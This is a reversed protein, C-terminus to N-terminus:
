EAYGGLYIDTEVGVHGVYVDFTNNLTALKIDIREESIGHENILKQAASFARGESEYVGLLYIFAGYCGGSYGDFTVVWVEEEIM